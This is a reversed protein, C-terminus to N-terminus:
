EHFEGTRGCNPGRWLRTEMRELLGGARRDGAAPRSRYNANFELVNRGCSFCSGEDRFEEALLQAGAGAGASGFLDFPFFVVSSTM